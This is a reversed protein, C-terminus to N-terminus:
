NNFFDTAGIARLYRSHYLQASIKAAVYNKRATHLFLQADIVETISSYGDQYRELSIAENERAKELSNENLKVQEISQKYTSFASQIELSVNDKAKQFQTEAIDEKLRYAKKEHKRKNWEFIPIKLKVYVAYNPDFDSDFDYGPSSYNGEAGVSLSPRYKGDNISTLSKQVDIKNKAMEIVPRKYVSPIAFDASKSAPILSDVRIDTHLDQGIFSNLALLSNELNTQSQKQLYKVENLKVEVMLLENRSVLEADVREKVIKVLNETSGIYDDMIQVVETQAVANWYRVDTQYVVDLLVSESNDKAIDTQVKSLKYNNRIMGGQYIPQAVTVAGKYAENDGQFGVPASAGPLQISLEMPNGTYSYNANAAVKALFDTKASKEKSKAAEINMQAAKMDQNYSIAMKRYKSLLDNEQAYGKSVLVTSLFLIYILKNRMKNDKLRISFLM